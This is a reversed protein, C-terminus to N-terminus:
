IEQGGPDVSTWGGLSITGLNITEPVDINNDNIGDAIEWDNGMGVDASAKYVKMVVNIYNSKVIINVDYHKQALLEPYADSTLAVRLDAKQSGQNMTCTLYLYDGGDIVNANYSGCDLRSVVDVKPAYFGSAIKYESTTSFKLTNNESDVQNSDDATLALVLEADPDMPLTQRTAPYYTVGSDANGGGVLALDSITFDGVDAGAGQYFNVKLGIRRDSLPTSFEILGYDGLRVTQPDTMFLSESMPTFSYSGKDGCAVAPSTMVIVRQGNANLDVIEKDQQYTGDDSVLCPTLEADTDNKWYFTESGLFSYIGAGYVGNYNLIRFTPQDWDGAKTPVSFSLRDAECGGTIDDSCAMVSLMLVALMHRGPRIM